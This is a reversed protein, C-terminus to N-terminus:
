KNNKVLVTLRGVCILDGQENTIKAEWLHTSKGEHILRATGYVFGTRASKIHNANVEVGVISQQTLDVCLASGSSGLSEILVVSAGGHLLGMPQHTRHDVPMKGKIFDTGIETYEIGLHAMLTNKNFANVQELPINTNIM